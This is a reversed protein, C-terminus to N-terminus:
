GEILSRVSRTGPFLKRIGQTLDFRSGFLQRLSEQVTRISFTVDTEAIHGCDSPHSDADTYSKTVSFSGSAATQRALDAGSFDISDAFVGGNCRPQKVLDGFIETLAAGFAAGIATLVEPAGAAAFSIGVLGTWVTGAIKAQDEASLGQDTPDSTNVGAYKVSVIQDPAVRMPGVEWTGWKGPPATPPFNLVLTDGTHLLGTFSGVHGQEVGNSVVGFTILDVDPNKGRQFKVFMKELRFMFAPV